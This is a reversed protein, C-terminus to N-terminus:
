PKLDAKWLSGDRRNIFFFVSEDGSLFPNVADPRGELGFSEASFTETNIKVLIDSFSIKGRYWDDPHITQPLPVTLACFLAKKDLQSWVCKAPIVKLSGTKIKRTGINFLSSSITRNDRDSQSFLLDRGNTSIELGLRPGLFKDFSGTALNLRYLFGDAFASPSNALYLNSEEPWYIRWGRFPNRMIVKQGKNDPAAIVVSSEEGTTLTYAIRDGKPSFVVDQVGPPLFVGQTSSSTFRVSLVNLNSSSLYKLIARTGDPSWTVEFIGPITTNSVRTKNQGDPDIEFVHGTEREIYRVKGRAFTAGSVSESVLKQATLKPVGAETPSTGGEEGEPQRKEEASPTREGGSPFLRAFFGREEEVTVSTQSPSFYWIAGAIILILAAAAIILNSKTFLNQMGSKDVILLGARPQM